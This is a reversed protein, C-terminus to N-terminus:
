FHNLCHKFVKSDVCNDFNFGRSSQQWKFNLFLFKSDSIEEWNKRTSMVRRILSSNNGAGVYYKLKHEAKEKRDTAMTKSITQRRPEKLRKIYYSQVHRM